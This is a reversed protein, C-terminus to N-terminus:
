SQQQRFQEGIGRGIEKAAIRWANCWGSLNDRSIQDAIEAPNIDAIMEYLNWLLDEKDEM